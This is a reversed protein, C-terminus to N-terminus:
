SLRHQGAEAGARHFLPRQALLHCSVSLLQGCAPHHGWSKMGFTSTTIPSVAASTRWSATTSTGTPYKPVTIRFTRGQEMSKFLFYVGYANAKEMRRLAPLVYDEKRIGKQAWEIPLRHNSAYSEVWAQYDGTRQSLVEKDVV